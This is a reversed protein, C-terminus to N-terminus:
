TSAGSDKTAARSLMTGVAMGLLASFMLGNSIHLIEFLLAAIASVVVAIFLAKSKVMPVVMAIFTAVIAFDFGLQDINRLLHASVIGMLTALNWIVYFVFGAVIAYWYDFRGTKLQNAQAVVFMEDTLLFAFLARKYFPLTIIADQYTASYLVHRVSIMGTSNVLSLWSGGAGLIAIGSIQAAGAFVLLSMLQAQFSSLGAEISLTGCLVGWPIVSISLPLIAMTASLARQRKSIASQYSPEISYSM